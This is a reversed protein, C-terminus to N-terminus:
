VNLISIVPLPILINEKLYILHYEKVEKLLFIPEIGILVKVVALFKLFGQIM